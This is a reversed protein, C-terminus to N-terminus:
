KMGLKKNQSLLNIAESIRKNRTEERKANSIWLIYNRRYSPALHNFYDRAKPHTTLAKEFLSPIELDKRKAKIKRVEADSDEKTIGDTKALGAQTMRGERILKEARRKNLASWRSKANRPTFKQVYQRENLYQINSDIWGFCLAEEVADGYPIRPRGTHKKDYVLWIETERDHNKELWARWSERNTVHVTKLIKM